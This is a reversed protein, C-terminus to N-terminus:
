YTGGDISAAELPGAFTASGDYRIDAVTDSSDQGGKYVSIARVTGDGDDNRVVFQGTNSLTSGKSTDVPGAKVNGSSTIVAGGKAFTASGDPYLLWRYDGGAVGGIRGGTVGNSTAEPYINVGNTLESGVVVKEVFTASGDWNIIFNGNNEFVAYSDSGGLNVRNAGRICRVENKAQISNEFTASGDTNLKVKDTALTLNGTMNDGAKRVYIPDGGDPNNIADIEEQLATDADDVYKKNVGHNDASPANVLVLNDGDDLLKDYGNASLVKPRLDSM